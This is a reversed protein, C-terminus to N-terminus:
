ATSSRQEPVLMAAVRDTDGVDGITASRPRQPQPRVLHGPATLLLGGVAGLCQAGLAYGPKPKGLAVPAGLLKLRAQARQDALKCWLDDVAGRQDIKVGLVIPYGM